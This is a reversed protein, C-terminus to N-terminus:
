SNHLMCPSIQSTDQIYSQIDLWSPEARSPEARAPENHYRAPEARSMIPGLQFKPEARSTQCSSSARKGRSSARPRFRCAPKTAPAARQSAPQPASSPPPVRPAQGSTAAHGGPTSSAVLSPTPGSAATGLRPISAATRHEMRTASPQKSAAPKPTCTLLTPAPGHTVAPRTRAIGHAHASGSPLTPLHAVPPQAATPTPGCSWVALPKM